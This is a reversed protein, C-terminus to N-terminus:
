AKIEGLAALLRTNDEALGVTIRLHEPLGYAGMQRIFIGRDRLAIRIEEAKPGFHVLIFNGASPLTKFGLRNLGEHLQQLGSKTLSITKAVFADDQLAAIGAIQAPVSTNFPGRVRNIAGAIEIPFYGWGLRLAALGHIKSFTRLMVVNEHATVFEAGDAYDKDEVFEAYAADLVILVSADVGDILRKIEARKLLSGTPNNPNALIIVKTKPTVAAIVADIDTTFNKEPIAVPVAGAVKAAIPYMLFGYQSYIVEDGPGVFARMILGILEDSGAGCVINDAPLKYKAAIAARIGAAAGDPYRHLDCAAAVYADRALPSCGLPNENSALRVPTIGAAVRGEGGIYPSLAMIGARAQPKLSM